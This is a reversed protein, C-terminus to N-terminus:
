EIWSSVKSTNSIKTYFVSLKNSKVNIFTYYSYFKFIKSENSM